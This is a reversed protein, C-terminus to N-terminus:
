AKPKAAVSIKAIAQPTNPAQNPKQALCDRDYEAIIHYRVCTEFM